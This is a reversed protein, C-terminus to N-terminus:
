DDEYDDINIPPISYDNNSNNINNVNIDDNTFAIDDDDSLDYKTYDIGTVESMRKIYMKRYHEQIERNNVTIRNGDDDIVTYKNCSINVGKGITHLDEARVEVPTNEIIAKSKELLEDSMETIREREMLQLKELGPTEQDYGVDKHANEISFAEAPDINRKKLNELERIKIEWAVIDKEESTLEDAMGNNLRFLSTNDIDRIRHAFARYSAKEEDTLINSMGFKQAFQKRSEETGNNM